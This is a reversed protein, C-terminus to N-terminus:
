ETDDAGPTLADAQNTLLVDLDDIGALGALVVAHQSEAVLISAVLAAGETGQLAGLLETHTAAAVEELEHAALVVDGASGFATALQDFVEDNRQRTARPGLLGGLAEAYSQHSSRFGALVEATAADGLGAAVAVGYLDRATLELSEAFALLTVDDDTPRRPPATTPAPTGTDQAAATRALLPLAATLAAGTLGARLFRRRSAAGTDGLDTHDM